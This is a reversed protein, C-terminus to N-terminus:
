NSFLPPKMRISMTALVKRMYALGQTTLMVFSRRKDTQDPRREVLGTKELSWGWRLATTAPVQGAIGADSVSIFKDHAHAIFLDLLIDWAPDNFLEPSTSAKERDRRAVYVKHAFTALAADPLATVRGLASFEAQAAVESSGSYELIVEGIKSVVGSLAAVERNLDTFIEPKTDKQGLQRM